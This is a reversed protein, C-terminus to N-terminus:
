IKNKYALHKKFLKLEASKASRSSCFYYWFNLFFFLSFYLLKAFIFNADHIWTQKGISHEFFHLVALNYGRFILNLISISVPGWKCSIFQGSGFAFVLTVLCGSMWARNTFQILDTNRTNRSLYFWVINEILYNRRWFLCYTYLLWSLSTLLTSEENEYLCWLELWIRLLLKKEEM